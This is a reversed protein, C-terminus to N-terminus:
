EDILFVVHDVRVVGESIGHVIDLFCAIERGLVEEFDNFDLGDVNTVDIVLENDFFHSLHLNSFIPVLEICDPVVEFDDWHAVLFSKLLEQPYQLLMWHCHLDGYSNDDILTCGIFWLDDVILEKLSLGLQLFIAGLKHFSFSVQM